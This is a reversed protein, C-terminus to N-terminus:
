IERVVKYSGGHEKEKKRKILLREKKLTYKWAQKKWSKQNKRKRSQGRKL